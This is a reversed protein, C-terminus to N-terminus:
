AANDARRRRTAVVVAAGGVILVAGGTALGGVEAGTFALSSPGNGVVGANAQAPVATFSVKEVRGSTLGKLTLTYRGAKMGAPVTYTGSIAGNADATYTGVLVGNVWVQVSEGPTFGSGHFTVSHGARVVTTSVTAGCPAAAYGGACPAASASGAAGVTAIAAVSLGAAALFTKHMSM